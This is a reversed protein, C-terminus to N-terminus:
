AAVFYLLQEVLAFDPPASMQLQLDYVFSHHIITHTSLPLCLSLTCPSSYLALFQVRFFVQTYLLMHVTGRQVYSIVYIRNQLFFLLFLLLINFSYNKFYFMCAFM